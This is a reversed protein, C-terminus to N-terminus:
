GALKGALVPAEALSRIMDNLHTCGATKRLRELVTDRLDAMPTNLLTSINVTAAPCEAHPLTGPSADLTLLTGTAGDATARLRYEHIAERLTSGPLSASDQFLSEVHIRGDERWIDIMRARRFHPKEEDAPLAHWGAPDAPNVLPVVETSNPRFGADQQQIPILARSGPRFGICVGAMDPMKLEAREVRARVQEANWRSWGWMCVLSAGALDDLLLYIPEGARKEAHLVRDLAARLRAGAREGPLKALVDRPPSSEVDLITRQDLHGTIADEAIVLPEGGDVPTVIDRARGRFRCPTMGGGPWDIDISMTRRVSGPRRLPVAGHPTRPAAEFHPLPNGYLDLGLDAPEVALSDPDDTM